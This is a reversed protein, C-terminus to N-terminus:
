EIKGIKPVIQILIRQNKAENQTPHRGIGGTGSGAIQVECISQDPVVGYRQWLKLVAWARKYSLPFNDAYGDKSAMGEIVVLYKIDQGAYNTKLNDILTKIASGVDKLYSEDKASIVDSMTAFRVDQTLSFRKYAPDYAFYKTPLEKVADQIDKIKRLQDETAQKDKEIRLQQQRLMVYTLVWLVLVIFFLSTM